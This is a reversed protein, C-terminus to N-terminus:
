VGLRLGLVRGDRPDITCDFGFHVLLPSEPAPQARGQGRLEARSSSQPTLSRTATDFSIQSVRPWRQKLAVAASSECASPSVHSLDPEAVPQPAAPAATQRIVVGLAEGGQPDLNCSYSFKRLATADRWQGDGHLVVQGDGSPARVSPAASFRLDAAPGAKQALAQRVARECQVVAEAGVAGSVAQGTSVPPAATQASAIWGAPAAFALVGAAALLRARRVSPRM